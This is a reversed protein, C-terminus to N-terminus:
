LGIRYSFKVLFINNVKLKTFLNKLDNGINVRGNGDYYDQRQSWVLYATSGPLFEWRVVLNSLWKSVNFNPDAFGYDDTGDMDEDISYYDNFYSIQKNPGQNPYIFMRDTYDRAHPDTIMKFKSYEGAAVFPQGWYQITLDPTINYNLRLSMKLVKQSITGFVYRDESNFSRHSIYQLESQSSSYSPSIDIRLSNMPRMKISAGINRNKYYDEAGGNLSGKLRFSLSKRTDTDIIFNLRWNNPLLMSPGGRLVTNSNQMGSYGFGIEAHWFNTFDATTCGKYELGNLNGGFDMVTSITNCFHLYRFISFPETINYSTFFSNLIRDAERMYGIDNLELGPSKWTNLFLFNWNGGIKGLELKGGHGSLNTRTGDYEIYDADTRQFYRASSSQTEAIADPTGEVNSFYLNGSIKYNRDKFFQTFDIGASSANKHLHDMSTNDNNRIVNTLVAGIRSNRKNFDRSVRALAYNTLPEITESRTDNDSDIRAKMEKTVSEIIGISWGNETKGTLKAAGLIVSSIPVDAFEDVDLSPYGHPRRGIRRSYFLKDNDVNFSTINNGEIFFPRKEMFFTEYASLNVESPDAEVQGFDPNITLDLTLNNTVGLKADIGASFNADKGTRFPNGVESEYKNYSAVAFPTFDLQKRPQINQLGDMEGMAHVIGSSNRPIHQWFSMENYRFISRVVLLGWLEESNKKFRLQTFPIKMEAAWGWDFTKVKAQWVPDWSADGSPGNDPMIMDFRVGASSVGFVFGTRLDHYSDFIVFVMDGDSMDRRSMRYIISDPSSDIARIAIYLNNNDFGVKFETPQSPDRGEYPENQIFDGDWGEGIWAQDDLDGNIIPAVVVRNAKHLRKPIEQGMSIISIGVLASIILKKM